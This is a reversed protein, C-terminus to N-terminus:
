VSLPSYLVKSFASIANISASRALNEAAYSGKQCNVRTPLVVPRLARALIGPFDRSASSVARCEPTIDDEDCRKAAAPLPWRLERESKHM